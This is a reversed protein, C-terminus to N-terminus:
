PSGGVRVTIRRSSAPAYPYNGMPLSAIQFWYTRQISSAGVGFTYSTTFRGSGGVNEHVGYTTFASGLGIRLRVLAGGPPLYGGKLQGTLKITGGWGVRRPTVWILKVSAPVVIQAPRSLSSETTPGGAYSTAVLRSPGAPLRASWSGNSRTTAVTMLRFDHQGNTPATYVQVRRGGLAVGGTTGLWGDVTTGHGFAVRRRSRLALRPDLVVRVVRTEPVRVTKGNQRRTVWVTVRRRATRVHCREVSVRRTRGNRPVRVRHGHRRVVVWRTRGVERILTRHCRMRNVLKSFGVENVTPLGIKMGFRGTNSRARVGSASVANNYATCDVQHEGVGSLPVHASAGRYWRWLAGDARCYIGDVGSPGASATATVYQTGSTSAADRPGSLRVTPPTNDVYIHRTYNVVRGAADWAGILLRNAGQQYGQTDIPDVVAGAGCQKWAALDRPSSAGPLNQGDLSAVLGCVGSPSDGTFNLNWRGRIWGHSQWLGGHPTMSPGMTERVQLRVDSVQFSPSANCTSRACVLLLGFHRSGFPGLSASGEGPRIDSHGGDWYFDGGFQTKGNTNLDNSAISNRPLVAGVVELGVPSSAQWIAGQGRGVTAGTAFLSLEGGPCEGFAQVGANAASAKFIHNAYAGCSYVSEDASAPACHGVLSTCMILAALAPLVSRLRHQVSHM